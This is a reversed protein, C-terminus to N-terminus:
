QTLDPLKYSVGFNVSLKKDVDTLYKEKNAYSLTIPLNFNDNIEQTLTISAVFRNDRNPDGSVDEYSGTFDLRSERSSTPPDLRIAAHRARDHVAATRHHEVGGTRSRRQLRIAM